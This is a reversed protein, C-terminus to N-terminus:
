ISWGKISSIKDNWNGCPYYPEFLIQGYVDRYYGGCTTFSVLTLNPVSLVQGPTSVWFRLTTGSFCGHEFIDVSAGTTTGWIKFSSIKDNEAPWLDRQFYSQNSVTLYSLENVYDAHEYFRYYATGGTSTYDTCNKEVSPATYGLKAQYVDMSKADDFVQFTYTNENPNPQEILYATPPTDQNQFKQVAEVDGTMEILNDNEDYVVEIQYTQDHYTYLQTMRQYEVTEPANPKTEKKTCGVFVLTLCLVASAIIRKETKM